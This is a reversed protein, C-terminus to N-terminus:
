GKVKEKFIPTLIQMPWATAKGGEGEERKGEEKPLYSPSLGSNHKEHFV